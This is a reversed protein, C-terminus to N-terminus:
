YEAFLDGKATFVRLLFEDFLDIGPRRSGNGKSQTDFRRLAGIIEIVQSANYRKRALNYNKMQGPWKLGLATMLGRESKDAVSFTILLNSFLTFMAGAAVPLAIAKPNARMYAAIGMAKAMDGAAVADTLEFLNYDKSVGVHREVAEPTVTAGKGLIDALKGCENYLRDLSTGVHQKLMELAKPQVNLGASNFFQTIHPGVASEYLPKSVFVTAADSAKVAAMLKDGKADAGRFALVLVTTSAPYKVYGELKNLQDPRANQCEKVIVVQRDTMMPLRRCADAVAAMDTQPAYFTYLNFERDGEALLGAFRELLRDTFYGEAGSLVYVGSATGAALQAALGEYTANKAM